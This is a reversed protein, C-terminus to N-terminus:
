YDTTLLQYDALGTLPPINIAEVHLQVRAGDPAVDSM